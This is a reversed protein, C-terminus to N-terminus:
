KKGECQHWYEEEPKNEKQEGMEDGFFVKAIYQTEQSEREIQKHQQLLTFRNCSLHGERERKSCEGGLVQAEINTLKFQIERITHQTQRRLTVKQRCQRYGSDLSSVSREPLMNMDTRSRTKPALQSKFNQEQDSPTKQNQHWWFGVKWIQM